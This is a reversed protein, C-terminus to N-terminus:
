GREGDTDFVGKEAAKIKIHLNGLINDKAIM